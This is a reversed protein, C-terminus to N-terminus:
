LEADHGDAEGAPLAQGADVRAGGREDLRAQERLQRVVEAERQVVVARHVGVGVEHRGGVRRVAAHQVRPADGGDRTAQGLLDVRVRGGAPEREREAPVVADRDAGDGAARPRRALPQAALDRDDPDVRVGVDVRGLRAAAAVDVAHRHREQRAQCRLRVLFHEPPQALFRPAGRPAVPPALADLVAALARARRAAHQAQLLQHVDPEPVHVRPLLLDQPLVAHTREAHM